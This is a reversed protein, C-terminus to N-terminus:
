SWGPISAHQRPHQGQDGRQRADQLVDDAGGQHTTSRSTGSRSRRRLDLRQPPHRRRRARKMAPCWAARWGCRRWSTCTGTTSGSRTRRRWSRRTALRHRCQQDPHRRRRLGDRGRRGARACGEATAVDCAVPVAQVGHESPSRTAGRRRARDGDRAAIVLHSARRPSARPRRRARHRRQRRHDGRGQGSLGLDM